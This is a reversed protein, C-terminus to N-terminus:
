SPSLYIEVAIRGAAKPQPNSAEPQWEGGGAARRQGPEM